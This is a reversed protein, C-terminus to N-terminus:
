IDSYTFSVDQFHTSCVKYKQMLHKEEFIGVRRAVTITFQSIVIDVLELPTGAVDFSVVLRTPSDWFDHAFRPPAVPQPAHAPHHHHSLAASPSPSSVYPNLIPQGSIKV